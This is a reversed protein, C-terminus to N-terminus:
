VTQPLVAKGVTQPMQPLVAKHARRTVALLKKPVIVRRRRTSAFLRRPNDKHKALIAVSIPTKIEQKQPETIVQEIIVPQAIVPQTIVPQAIVQEVIPPNVGDISTTKSLLLSLAKDVWQPPLAGTEATSAFFGENAPVIREILDNVTGELADVEDLTRFTTFIHIWSDQYDTPCTTLLLQTDMAFGYRLGIESFQDQIDFHVQHSTVRTGSLTVNKQVIDELLLYCGYLHNQLRLSALGHVNSLYTRIAACLPEM